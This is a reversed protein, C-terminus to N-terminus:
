IINPVAVSVTVTGPFNITFRSADNFPLISMEPTKDTVDPDLVVILFVVTLLKLTFTVFSKDMFPM